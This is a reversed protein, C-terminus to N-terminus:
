AAHRAATRTHCAPYRFSVCEQYAAIIKDILAPGFSQVMEIFRSPLDPSGKLAYLAELLGPDGVSQAAKEVVSIPVTTYGFVGDSNWSGMQRVCPGFRKELRKLDDDPVVIANM